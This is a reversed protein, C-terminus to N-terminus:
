HHITVLQFSFLFFIDGIRIKFILTNPSSVFVGRKMKQAIKERYFCLLTEEPANGLSHSLSDRLAGRVPISPDAQVHKLVAVGLGSIL